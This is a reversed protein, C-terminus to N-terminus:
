SRRTRKGRTSKYHSKRTRRGGKTPTPAVGAALNHLQQITDKYTKEVEYYHDSLMKRAVNTREQLVEFSGNPNSVFNPHLRLVPEALAEELYRGPRAMSRLFTDDVVLVTKIFEVVNRLHRDYMGRLKAHAGQLVQIKAKQAPHIAIEEVTCVIDGM